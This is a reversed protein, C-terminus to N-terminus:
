LWVGYIIGLMGLMFGAIWFLKVIDTESWNLQEFHHHIPAKLFVKKKFRRISVIQILSSLTEIVFVGGIIALSIEHRTLIATTALAGGLALSGTDGMFVKAPHTNFVLFGLISGVLIFCFIAIEQYGSIWYSGWSIVGYSFFAIASLGGCLGDLGDTINVANTTGVLLFLIFLGFFYGLQIKFGFLSITLDTLGGNYKYIIYFIIAILLQALLKINISIGKNNKYKLKLYDDIFGLLGYSLFVFILIILNHNLSISGKLCLLIISIITPLIFIIGGLTPTGDKKIHRLNILRSTKQGINNKRLIPIVILGTVLSIVFGLMIGLITKALILM